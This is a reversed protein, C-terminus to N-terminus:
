IAYAPPLCHKDLYQKGISLVVIGLCEFHSHSPHGQFFAGTQCRLAVGAPDGQLKPWHFDMKVCPSHFSHAKRAYIKSM